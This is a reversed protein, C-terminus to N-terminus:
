AYFIKELFNESPIKESPSFIAYVKACGQLLDKEQSFSKYPNAMSRSLFFIKVCFLFIKFNKARFFSKKSFESIKLFELEITSNWLM